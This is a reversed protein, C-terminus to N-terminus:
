LDARNLKFDAQLENILNYDALEPM